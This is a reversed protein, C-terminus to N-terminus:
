IADFLIVLGEPDARWECRRLKLPLISLLGSDCTFQMSTQVVAGVHDGIKGKSPALRCRGGESVRRVLLAPLSEDNDYLVDVRDGVCWRMVRMAEIPLAVRCTMGKESGSRNRSVSALGDM